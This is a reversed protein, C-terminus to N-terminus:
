IMVESYKVLVAGDAQPIYGLRTYREAEQEAEMRTRFPGTGEKIRGQKVDGRPARYAIAYWGPAYEGPDMAGRKQQRPKQRSEPKPLKQYDSYAYALALGAAGAALGALFMSFGSGSSQEAM